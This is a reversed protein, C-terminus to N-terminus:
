TKNKLNIIKSTVLFSIKFKLDQIYVYQYNHKLYNYFLRINYLM